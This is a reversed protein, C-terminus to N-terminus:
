ETGQIKYPFKFTEWKKSSTHLLDYIDMVNLEAIGQSFGSDPIVRLVQYIVHNLANVPSPINQDTM